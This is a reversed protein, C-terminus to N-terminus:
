RQQKQLETILENIQDRDLKKVLAKAALRMDDRNVDIYRPRIRAQRAADYASLERNIVRRALEPNDRNLRAIIYEPNDGREDTSFTNSVGKRPRGQKASTGVEEDLLRKVNIRLADMRKQWAEQNKENKHPFALFRLLKDAPLGCGVPIPLEILDRFSGVPTSDTRSKPLRLWDKRAIMGEVLELLFSPDGGETELQATLRVRPDLHDSM